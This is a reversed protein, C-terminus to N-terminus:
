SDTLIGNFLIDLMDSAQKEFSRKRGALHNTFIVGYLTDSFLDFIHEVPMTRIRGCKMGQRIIERRAEAHEDRYNFYSNKKRDRFEAREIMLLEILEPHQDFYGLYALFGEKIYDIPDSIADVAADIRDTLDRMGADVTAFFLKEKSPFYRYITGKGISLTDALIQIDAKPYGFEAFFPMAATLIEKKRRSIHEKDIPRGPKRKTTKMRLVM